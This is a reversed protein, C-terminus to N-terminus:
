FGDENDKFAQLLGVALSGLFTLFAVYTTSALREAKGIARVRRRTLVLACRGVSKASITRMYFSTTATCCEGTGM